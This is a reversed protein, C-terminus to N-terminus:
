HKCAENLRKISNTIYEAPDKHSKSLECEQVLIGFYQIIYDDIIGLGDGEEESVGCVDNFASVM